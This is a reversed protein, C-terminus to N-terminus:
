TNAPPLETPIHHNTLTVTKVSFYGGVTGVVVNGRKKSSPPDPPGVMRFTVSMQGGPLCTCRKPAAVKGSCALAADVVVCKGQSTQLVSTVHWGPGPVWAFSDISGLGSQNQVLLRYMGNKLTELSLSVDTSVKAAQDPDGQEARAVSPLLIATAAVILVVASIAAVFRRRPDFSAHQARSAIRHKRGVRHM